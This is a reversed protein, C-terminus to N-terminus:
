SGRKRFADKLSWNKDMRMQIEEISGTLMDNSELLVTIANDTYAAHFVNDLLFQPPETEGASNRRAIWLKKDSNQFLIYKQGAEIVKEVTIMHSRLADM